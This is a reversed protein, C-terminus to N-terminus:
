SPCCPAPGQWFVFNIIYVADGININGDCNADGAELPVPAPGQQFVYHGVYVADGINIAEDDNADGCLYDVYEVQGLILGHNEAGDTVYAHITKLGYDSNGGYESLDWDTKTPSYPEWPSWSKAAPDNTFCMYSRLALFGSLTDTVNLNLDVILSGTMAAGNRVLIQGTPLITDKNVGHEYWVSWLAQNEGYSLPLFWYNWFQDMNDPHQGDVSKSLLCGMMYDLGDDMLDPVSDPHGVGPTGSWHSYDDPNDDYIDWLIGAVTGECNLGSDNASGYIMIRDRWEGNEINKETFEAFDKWTNRIIPDNPVYASWFHAFGDCGAFDDTIRSFWYHIPVSITSDLFGYECALKHGYEHLIIDGDFIDPAGLTDINDSCIRIYDSGRVFATPLASQFCVNVPTPNAKYAVLNVWANYGDLIRDIVYLRGSADVNATAMINQDDDIDYMGSTYSSYVPGSPSTNSSMRAVGNEAYLVVYPDINGWEETDYNKINGFDFDGNNDTTDTSSIKVDDTYMNDDWLEVAVNRAPRLAGGQGLDRYRLTGEIYVQNSDWTFLLSDINNTESSEGIQHYCDAVVKLWHTGYPICESYDEINLHEGAQLTDTNEFYGLLTNDVYLATSFPGARYEGVNAISFDIFTYKDAWLDSTYNTSPEDDPVIFGQWGAYAQPRLDPYVAYQYLRINDVFIGDYTNSYDSFFIYAIYVGSHGELNIEEYEDTCWGYSNGYFFDSARTWLSGDFSYYLACADYWGKEKSGEEIIHWVDYEVAIWDVHLNGYYRYLLAEMDNDYQDQAPRQGIRSCWASYLGNSANGWDAFVSITDWFDVGSAANDDFADWPLLGDEFSEQDIQVWQGKESKSGDTGGELRQTSDQQEPSQNFGKPAPHPGPAPRSSTIAIGRDHVEKAQARTLKV